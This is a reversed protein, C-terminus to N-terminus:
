ERSEVETSVPPLCVVVKRNVCVKILLNEDKKKMSEMESKRNVKVVNTLTEKLAPAFTSSNEVYV